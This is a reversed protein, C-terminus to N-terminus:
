TKYLIYTKNVKKRIATFNNCRLIGGKAKGQRAKGQRAKGQKRQSM